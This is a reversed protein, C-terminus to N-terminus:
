TEKHKLFAALKKDKEHIHQKLRKILEKHQKDLLTNGTLPVNNWLLTM